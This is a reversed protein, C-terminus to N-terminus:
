CSFVRTEPLAPKGLKEVTCKSMRIRELKLTSPFHIGLTCTEWKLLDTYCWLSPLFFMEWGKRLRVKPGGSM